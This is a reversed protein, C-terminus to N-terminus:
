WCIMAGIYVSSIFQSNLLAIPLPFPHHNPDASHLLAAHVTPVHAAFLTPTQSTCAHPPSPCAIQVCAVTVCEDFVGMHEEEKKTKDDARTRRFTYTGAMTSARGELKRGAEVVM